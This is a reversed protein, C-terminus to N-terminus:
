NNENVRRRGTQPLQEFCIMWINIWIESHYCIFFLDPNMVIFTNLIICQRLLILENRQLSIRQKTGITLTHLCYQYHCCDQFIFYLSEQLSQEKAPRIKLYVFRCVFCVTCQGKRRWRSSSQVLFVLVSFTITFVVSPGPSYLCFLLSSLSLSPALAPILSFIFSFFPWPREDINLKCQFCLPHTPRRPRKLSQASNLLFM